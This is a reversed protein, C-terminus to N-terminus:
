PDAGYATVWIADQDFAWPMQGPLHRIVLDSPPAGANLTATGFDAQSKVDNVVNDTGLAYGDYMYLSVGATNAIAPQSGAVSVVGDLLSVTTFEHVGEIPIIIGAANPATEQINFGSIANGGCDNIYLGALVQNELTLGAISETGCVLGLKVGYQGGSVEINIWDSTAPGGEIGIYGGTADVFVNQMYSFQASYFQVGIAGPNSGTKFNIDRVASSFLVDFCGATPYEKDMQDNCPKGPSTDTPDPLAV